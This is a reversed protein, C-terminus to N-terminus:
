IETKTEVTGFKVNQGSTSPIQQRRDPFDESDVPLIAHSPYDTATAHTNLSTHSPYHQPPPPGMLPAASQPPPAAFARQVRKQDKSMRRCIDVMGLIFAIGGVAVLIPGIIKLPDSGVASHGPWYSIVTLSIGIILLGLSLVVVIIMIPRFHPPQSRMHMHAMHRSQSYQKEKGM